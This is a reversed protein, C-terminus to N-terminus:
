GEAVGSKLEEELSEPIIGIVEHKTLNGDCTLDLSMSITRSKQTRDLTAEMAELLFSTQGQICKPVSPVFTKGLAVSLSTVFSNLIINGLEALLIEEAKSLQSLKTYAVGMFCRAIHEIDEPRFIIMATFPKHGSVEFYVAAGLEDSDGYSRIADALSSAKVRCGAMAWTGVSMRSLKSVCKEMTSGLVKEWARAEMGSM